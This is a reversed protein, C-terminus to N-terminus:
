ESRKIRFISYFLEREPFDKMSFKGYSIIKLLYIIFWVILIIISVSLENTQIYNVKTSLLACGFESLALFLFGFGVQYYIWNDWSDSKNLLEAVETENKKAISLSIQGYYWALLARERYFSLAAILLGFLGITCYIPTNNWMIHQSENDSLIIRDTAFALSIMCFSSLIGMITMEKDLYDLYKSINDTENTM